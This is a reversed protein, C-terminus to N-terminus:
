IFKHFIQFGVRMSNKIVQIYVRINRLKDPYSFLRHIWCNFQDTMKMWLMNLVNLRFIQLNSQLMLRETFNRLSKKVCGKLMEVKWIKLYLRITSTIKCCIDSFISRTRNFAPCNSWLNNYKLYNNNRTQKNMEQFVKM